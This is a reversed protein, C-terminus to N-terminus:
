SRSTPPIPCGATLSIQSWCENPMTAEFRIYSSKPRKKPEPVVLGARTLYRSITALSVRTQHHQALHWAITDPGADQGAGSLRERLDVILAVSEPALGLTVGVFTTCIAAGVPWLLAILYIPWHRLRPRLGADEFGERTVWRRVVICAIAPAVPMLIPGVTGLGDVQALFPVWALGFALALFTTIAGEDGTRVVRPGEETTMPARNIPKPTIRTAPRVTATRTGNKRNDFSGTALGIAM